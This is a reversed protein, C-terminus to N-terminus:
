DRKTLNIIRPYVPHLRWKQMLYEQLGEEIFKSGYQLEINPIINIGDLYYKNVSINKIKQMEIIVQQFYYHGIEHFETSKLFNPYDGFKWRPALSDYELAVYNERINVYIECDTTRSVLNFALPPNVADKDPLWAHFEIGNYLTDKILNEYEWIFKKQLDEDLVYTKIGLTTPSGNKYQLRPTKQASLVTSLLMLIMVLTKM